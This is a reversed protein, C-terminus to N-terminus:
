PAVSAPGHAVPLEAIRGLRSTVPAEMFRYFLMAFAIAAAMAGVLVLVPPGGGAARWLVVVANVTFTHSLYLTYSADGGFILFRRIPGVPAPEPALIVGTALLLAPVGIALRQALKDSATM